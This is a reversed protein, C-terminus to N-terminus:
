VFFLEAEARDLEAEAQEVARYSDEASAPNERAVERYSRMARLLAENASLFQTHQTRLRSPPDLRRLEAVLQASADEAARAASENEIVDADGFARQWAARQTRLLARARRIYVGERWRWAGAAAALTIGVAGGSYGYSGGLVM